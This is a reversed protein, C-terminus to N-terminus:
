YMRLKKYKQIRRHNLAKWANRVFTLNYKRPERVQLSMLDDVAAMREILHESGYVEAFQNTM